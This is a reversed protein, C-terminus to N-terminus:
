KRQGLLKERTFGLGALAEKPNKNYARCFTTVEKMTTLKREYLTKLIFARINVEDIIDKPVLGSQQALRDRFVTSTSVARINKQEYDYKFIQSLLVVRQEMGSSESVEDIVRFLKDQVHYRKLVVFVDILNVLVEPVNM